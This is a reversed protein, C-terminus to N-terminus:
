SGRMGHQKGAAATLAWSMVPALLASRSTIHPRAHAHSPTAVHDASGGTAPPQDIRISSLCSSPQGVHPAVAAPHIAYSPCRIIAAPPSARSDNGSIDTVDANADANGDADEDAPRLGQREKGESISALLRLLVVRTTAEAHTLATSASALHTSSALMCRVTALLAIVVNAAGCASATADQQMCALAAPAAPQPVAHDDGRWQEGVGEAWRCLWGCLFPVLSGGGSTPLSAAMALRLLALQAHVHYPLVSTLCSDCLDPAHPSPAPRPGVPQLSPQVAVAPVPPPPPPHGEDSSGTDIAACPDGYCHRVLRSLAHAYMNHAAGISDASSSSATGTRCTPTLHLEVHVPGGVTARALLPHHCSAELIAAHVPASLLVRAPQHSATLHHDPVESSVTDDNECSPFRLAVTATADILEGKALADLLQGTPSARYCAGGDIGGSWKVQAMWALLTTAHRAASAGSVCPGVHRAGVRPCAHSSAALRSVNGGRSRGYAGAADDVDDAAFAFVPASSPSSSASAVGVLDHPLVVGSHHSLAGVAALPAIDERRITISAHAHSSAMHHAIAAISTAACAMWGDDVVDAGADVLAARLYSAALVRLQPTSPGSFWDSPLLSPSSSQVGSVDGKRSDTDKSGAAEAAGIVVVAGGSPRIWAPLPPQEVAKVSRIVGTGCTDCRPCGDGGCCSAPRFTNSRGTSDFEIAANYGKSAASAAQALFSTLPAPRRFRLLFPVPSPPADAAGPSSARSSASPPAQKAAGTHDDEATIFYSTVQGANNSVDGGHGEMRNMLHAATTQICQGHAGSTLRHVEIGLHLLASPRVPCVGGADITKLPDRSAVAAAVIAAEATRACDTLGWLHALLLTDVLLLLSPPLPLSVSTITTTTTTSSSTCQQQQQQEVQSAICHWLHSVYQAALRQLVPADPLGGAYMWSVVCHLAGECPVSVAIGTGSVGNNTSSIAAEDSPGEGNVVARCRDGAGVEGILLAALYPSRLAALSTSIPIPRHGYPTDTALYPITVVPQMDYPSKEEDGGEIVATVRLLSYGPCDSGGDGVGGHAQVEVADIVDCAMWGLGPDITPHLLSTPPSSSSSPRPAGDDIAMASLANYDAPLGDVESASGGKAHEDVPGHKLMYRGACAQQHAAFVAMRRRHQWPPSSLRRHLCSAGDRGSSSVLRTTPSPNGHSGEEDAQGGSMLLRWADKRKRAKGAATSAITADDDAASAHRPATAPQGWTTATVGGRGAAAAARGGGGSPGAAGAAAERGQRKRRSPHSSVDNAVGTLTMVSTDLRGMAAIAGEDVRAGAALLMSVLDLHGSTLALCLPSATCLHSKKLGSRHPLSLPDSPQPDFSAGSSLLLTVIRVVAAHQNRFSSPLASSGQSRLEMPLVDITTASRVMARMSSHLDAAASGGTGEEDGIRTEGTDDVDYPTTTGMGEGSCALQLATMGEGNRLDVVYRSCQWSSAAVLIATVAPVSGCRVAAHLPTDRPQDTERSSLLAHMVPSYAQQGRHRYLSSSGLASSPPMSGRQSFSVDDDDIGIYASEDGAQGPVFGNGICDLVASIASTIGNGAAAGSAHDCMWHLPSVAPATGSLLFSCSSPRHKSGGSVSGNLELSSYHSARLASLDWRSADDADEDGVAGAAVTGNGTSGKGKAARGALPYAPLSTSGPAVKSMTMGHVAAAHVYPHQLRTVVGAGQAILMRVIDACGAVAAYCIPPYGDADITNPDAGRSLLHSIITTATAAPTPTPTLSSHAVSSPSCSAAPTGDNACAAAAIAFHLPSRRARDRANVDAGAACLASVADPPGAVACAIHLPTLQDTSKVTVDAGTSLLFAVMAADGSRCALHLPREGRRDKGAMAADWQWDPSTRHWGEVASVSAHGGRACAEHVCNWRCAADVLVDLAPLSPATSPASFTVPPPAIPATAEHRYLYYPASAALGHAAAEPEAHTGCADDHSSVAESITASAKGAKVKAAIAKMRAVSSAAPKTKPLQRRHNSGTSPTYLDSTSMSEMPVAERVGPPSQRSTVDNVLSRPAVYSVSPTLRLKVDGPAASLPLTLEPDESVPLNTRPRLPAAEVRFRIPRM